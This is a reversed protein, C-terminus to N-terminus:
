DQWSRINFLGQKIGESLESVESYIARPIDYSFPMKSNDIDSRVDWGAVPSRTIAYTVAAISPHRSEVAFNIVGTGSICTVSRSPVEYGDDNVITSGESVVIESCSELALLDEPLGPSLNVGILSTLSSSLVQSPYLAVVQLDTNHGIQNNAYRQFHMIISCAIIIFIFGFIVKSSIFNKNIM